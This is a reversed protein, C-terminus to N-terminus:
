AESEEPLARAIVTLLAVFALIVAAALSVDGNTSRKM